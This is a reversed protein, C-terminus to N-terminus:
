EIEKEDEDYKIPMDFPKEKTQQGMFNKLIDENSAEEEMSKDEKPGTFLKSIPKNQLVM